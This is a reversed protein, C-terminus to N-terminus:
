CHVPLPRRSASDQCKQRVLHRRASPRLSPLGTMCGIMGGSAFYMQPAGGQVPPSHRNCRRRATGRRRLRRRPPAVASAPSRRLDTPNWASFSFHGSRGELAPRVFRDDGDPTDIRLEAGPTMSCQVGRDVALVVAPAGDLVAYEGAVMLKGPARVLSM